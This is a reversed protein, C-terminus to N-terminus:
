AVTAEATLSEVVLASAAQCFDLGSYDPNHGGMYPVALLHLRPHARGTQDKPQFNDNIAVGPVVLHYHGQADRIVREPDKELEQRGRDPDRFRVTAQTVVGQELLTRYPFAQIPLATQGVCDIFTPYHFGEYRVGGQSLPEPEGGSRVTVMELCGAERLAMMEQVSSHPLFAIVISILPMLTQHLRMTDEASFHKAPYNLTFSLTALAEKWAVPERQDLSKRAEAYERQFYDFPDSKERGTMAVAVFEEMHLDRVLEYMKPDSDKLLRKFDQEFLFDLPVFGENQKRAEVIEGPSLRDDSGVLPDDLHIRICPLLGSRTHMVVKFNASEPDLEFRLRDASVRVMRGNSRALTRLADVATLSSGRLAVPHNCRVRLKDPPYPSGFFGAVKGEQKCPWHHGSCIVVRDFRRHERGSIELQLVGQEPLDCIDVVPSQFHVHTEVGQRRGRAIMQEFQDELYHGFLLRPLVREEDFSERRIGHRDLVEQPLSRVWRDLPQELPPLESGSVNTIHEPGAGQSSYPMGQGLHCRAEFIHVVLDTRSTELLRKYVFLACPGGGVLAICIKKQTSM